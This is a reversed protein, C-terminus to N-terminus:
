EYSKNKKISTKVKKSQASIIVKVQTDLLEDLHEVHIPLACDKEFAKILRNVVEIQELKNCSLISSEIMKFAKQYEETPYM